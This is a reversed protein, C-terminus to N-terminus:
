SGEEVEFTWGMIHIWVRGVSGFFIRSGDFRNVRGKIEVGDGNTARIMMGIRIDRQHIPSWARDRYTEGWQNGMWWRMRNEFPKWGISRDEPPNQESEPIPPSTKEM